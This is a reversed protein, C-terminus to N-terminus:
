DEKKKPTWGQLLADLEALIRDVAAMHQEYPTPDPNQKKSM